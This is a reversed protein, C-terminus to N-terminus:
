MGVKPSNIIAFFIIAVLCAVMGCAAAQLQRMVPHEAQSRRAVLMWVGVLTAVTAMIELLIGMVGYIPPRTSGFLGICLESVAVGVVMGSAAGLVNALLLNWAGRHRVVWVWMGAWAMLAVVGDM